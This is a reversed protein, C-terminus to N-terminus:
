NRLKGARELSGQVYMSSSIKNTLWLSIREYIAPMPRIFDVYLIVRNEASRNWAEHDYTDDFIMSEGNQWHYTTDMLRLGCKEPESISLGLHYRLYGRFAGRHAKVHCGPKLISFFATTANPISKLLEATKPCRELNEKIPNGYILLPFFDWDGRNVVIRQEPSIDCIDHLTNPQNQVSKVEEQLSKWNAEITRTWEFDSPSFYSQNPLFAKMPLELLRIFAKGFIAQVTYAVKKTDTM